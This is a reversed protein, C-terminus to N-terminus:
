PPKTRLLLDSWYTWAYDCTQPCSISFRLKDGPMGTLPIEKVRHMGELKTDPLLCDILLLEQNRENSISFCLEAHLDQAASRIGYSVELIEAAAELELELEAPAHAFLDKGELLVQPSQSETSEVLSRLLASRMQSEQAYAAIDDPSHASSRRLLVLGPVPFNSVEEYFGAAELPPISTEHPWVPEHRLLYDPQYHMLWSSFERQAVYDANYPNVLGLIDIIYRESYWGVLGIEVLAVSAEPATNEKLWNGTAVYNQQPLIEDFSVLRSAMFLALGSIALM